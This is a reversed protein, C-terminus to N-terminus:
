RLCAKVTLPPALGTFAALSRRDGFGRCFVERVLVAATERGICVLTKLDAISARGRHM